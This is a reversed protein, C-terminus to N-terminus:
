DNAIENIMETLAKIQDKKSLGGLVNEMFNKNEDSSFKINKMIEIQRGEEIHGYGYSGFTTGVDAHGLNQSIAKKEEETLKTKAFEKVILHRLSHPKYYPVGAGIFRKEFIKRIATNSKWFVPEVECTSYYNVNEAGQEKKTSPFIPDSPNFGRKEILYDYWSVFYDLPEKYSLPILATTIRKHFKTQVNFAPDQDIILNNKDFSKLPLSMLASIRMGSLYFLSILARDRKDIESVDGINEIVKKVEEVSPINKKRSQIAERTENKSLRLYSVLSSNISAKYGAQKSLWEFFTKLRRLIDYCYSLSIKEETKGKKRNKLWEKFDVVKNKTFNTFDDKKTFDEWNFIAKEFACISEESFGEADKLYSFFRRKAMENKQLVKSM